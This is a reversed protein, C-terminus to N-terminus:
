IEVKPLTESGVGLPRQMLVSDIWRGFKYGISEFTGVMSFGMKEHLKISANNASDGIVALMQRKGLIECHRILESLLAKGIGQGQFASDLYISDEVTFRYASRPRYPGAYAYGMVVDDREALIFPLGLDRIHQWRKTMEELSPPVEEFSASGYLVHHTYIRHIAALDELLVDRLDFNM